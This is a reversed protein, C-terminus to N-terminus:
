KNCKNCCIGDCVSCIILLSVGKNWLKLSKIWLSSIKNGLWIFGKGM